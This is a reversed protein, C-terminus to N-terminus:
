WARQGTVMGVTCLWLAATAGTITSNFATKMGSFLSNGAAIVADASGLNDLGAGSMGATIGILTGMFGLVACAPVADLIRGDRGSLTAILSAALVAAIAYSAYSKDGEFIFTVYGMFAAWVVLAAWCTNLVILRATM